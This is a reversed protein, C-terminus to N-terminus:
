WFHRFQVCCVACLPCQTITNTTNLGTTVTDESRPRKHEIGAGKISLWIGTWQESLREQHEVRTGHTLIDSTPIRHYINENFHLSCYWIIPVQLLDTSCLIRSNQGGKLFYTYMSWRGMLLVFMMNLPASNRIWRYFQIRCHIYCSLQAFMLIGPMLPTTLYVGQSHLYIIM